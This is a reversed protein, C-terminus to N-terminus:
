LSINTEFTQIFLSGTPSPLCHLEGFEEGGHLVVMGEDDAHGDM